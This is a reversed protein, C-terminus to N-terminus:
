KEKKGDAMTYGIKDYHMVTNDIRNSQRLKDVVAFIAFSTIVLIIVMATRGNNM